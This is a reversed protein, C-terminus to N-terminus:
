LILCKNQDSSEPADHIRLNEFLTRACGGGHDFAADFGLLDELFQDGPHFRISIDRCHRLLNELAELADPINQFCVDLGCIVSVGGGAALRLDHQGVGTELCDADEPDGMQQVGHVDGVDGPNHSLVGVVVGSDVDM